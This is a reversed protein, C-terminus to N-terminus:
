CSGYSCEAQGGAESTGCAGFARYSEKLKIANRVAPTWWRSRTNGGHCAGVVKCGVGKAGRAAPSGGPPPDWVAEEPQAQCEGDHEAGLGPLGLVNCKIFFSFLNEMHKTGLKSFLFALNECNTM